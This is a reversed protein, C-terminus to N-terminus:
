AGPDQMVSLEFRPKLKEVQWRLRLEPLLLFALGACAALEYIGVPVDSFDLRADARLGLVALSALVLAANRLVTAIDVSSPHGACGCQAAPGEKTAVLAVVFTLLSLLIAASLAGLAATRSIWLLTATSLEGIVLGGAIVPARRGVMPVLRRTSNVAHPFHLAKALGTNIFIYGLFLQLLSAIM